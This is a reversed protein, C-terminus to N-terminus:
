GALGPLALRGRFQADSDTLEVWFRGVDLRDFVPLPTGGHGYSLGLRYGAAEIATRIQQSDKVPLGVPYALCQVPVGLQEELDARSGRLERDLIEPTLTQLVRHTRTHSGVAMGARRLARVQDWTMLQEDALRSELAADWPSGAAEALDALFRELDLAYETKVIGVLRDIVAQRGEGLDLEISTPYHVICRSNTAHKVLWSIHDWWFLRRQSIFGTAIFFAAKVRHELLIPLALDHIDRYGDDFTVLAPNAPLTGGDTAALLDDLEIFTFYRKLLRLQRDFSEPTADLVGDDFEAVASPDNVRHYNVITLLPTGFRPRLRLVAHHVGLRDLLAILRARAAFPM